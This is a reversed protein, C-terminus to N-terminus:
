DYFGMAGGTSAPKGDYLYIDQMAPNDIDIEANDAAIDSFLDALKDGGGIDYKWLITKYMVSWSASFILWFKYVTVWFEVLLVKKNM